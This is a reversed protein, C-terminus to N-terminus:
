LDTKNLFYNTHGPPLDPIEGCIEYGAKIYFDLAQFSTTSLRYRYVGRNNADNEIKKLLKSGLGKKILQEDVWLLEIYLWDWAIQGYIGGVLVDRDNRIQHLLSIREYSETFAENFARLNHRLEIIENNTPNEKSVFLLKNTAM